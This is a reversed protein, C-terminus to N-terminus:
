GGMGFSECLAIIPPHSIWELIAFFPAFRSPFQASLLFFLLFARVSADVPWFLTRYRYEPSPRFSFTSEKVLIKYSDISPCFLFANRSLPARPHESRGYRNFNQSTGPRDFECRLAPTRNSLLVLIWSGDVDMALSGVMYLLYQSLGPGVISCLNPLTPGNRGTSATSCYV